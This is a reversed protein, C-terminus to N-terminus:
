TRVHAYVFCFLYAVMVTM